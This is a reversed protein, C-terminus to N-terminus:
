DSIAWKAATSRGSSWAALPYVGGEGSTIVTDGKEPPDHEAIKSMTLKGTESDYNDVIGFSNEEKGLVTAAIAERRIRTLSRSRCSPHSSRISM